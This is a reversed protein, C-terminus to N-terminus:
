TTNEIIKTNTFLRLKSPKKLKNENSNNIFM